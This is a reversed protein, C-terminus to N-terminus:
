ITPPQQKGVRWVASFTFRAFATSSSASNPSLELARQQFINTRAPRPASRKSPVPQVRMGGFQQAFGDADVRNAFCWRVYERERRQRRGRASAIGRSRHFAEFENLLAGFGGDPVALEVIHPFDRENMKITIEGAPAVPPMM